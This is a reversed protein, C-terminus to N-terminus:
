FSYVVNKTRLTWEFFLSVNWKQIEIPVKGAVTSWNRLITTRVVGTGIKGDFLEISFDATIANDVRIAKHEQVQEVKQNIAIGGDSGTVAKLGVLNPIIQYVQGDSRSHILYDVDSSIMDWEYLGFYCNLRWGFGTRVPFRSNVSISVKPFLSIYSNPCKLESTVISDIGSDQIDKTIQGTIFRFYSTDIVASYTQDTYFVPYQLRADDAYLVKVGHLQSYEMKRSIMSNIFTQYNIQLKQTVNQQASLFLWGRANSVSFETNMYILAGAWLLPMWRNSGVMGGEISAGLFLSDDFRKNILFNGTVTASSGTLGGFVSGTIDVSDAVNHTTIDRKYRSAYGSVGGSYIRSKRKKQWTSKVNIGGSANNDRLQESAGFGAGWPSATDIVLANRGYGAYLSLELEPLLARKRYEPLAYITDLLASAESKWGLKEYISQRQGLIKLKFFNNGSNQIMFNAALASDFVGKEVLAQAWFYFLSDKSLGQSYSKVFCQIASDPKGRELITIGKKLALKYPLTKQAFIVVTIVLFIVASKILITFSKQYNQM